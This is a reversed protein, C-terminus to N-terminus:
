MHALTVTDEVPQRIREIEGPMGRHRDFRFGSALISHGQRWAVLIVLRAKDSRTVDLNLYTITIIGCPLDVVNDRLTERALVQHNHFDVCGTPVPGTIRWVLMIDM